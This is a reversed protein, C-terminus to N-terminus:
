DQTNLQYSKLGGDIKRSAYLHVMGLSATHSQGTFTTSGGFTKGGSCGRKEPWM